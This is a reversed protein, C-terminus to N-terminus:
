DSGRATRRYRSPLSGTNKKFIRTFFSLNEFGCLAATETVSCGETLYESARLCRYRHIYAVVTQGTLGKFERCLAYKDILVARALEDLTIRRNYNERIFRIAAKVTEFSRGEATPLARKSSHKETLVILLRLLIQNLRAVRCPVSESLYIDTLEGLLKALEASKIVPSFSLADYDIGVRKCFDADIILCTYTLSSDSVTYHIVNSNVAVIDGPHFEHAEGNLFVVGEGDTCLQLEIHEHWNQEGSGNFPTREIGVTLVFPLQGNLHRYEEHRTGVM